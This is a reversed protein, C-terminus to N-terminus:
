ADRASLVTPLLRQRASSHLTFQGSEKGMIGHFVFAFLCIFLFEVNWPFLLCFGIKPSLPRVKWFSPDTTKALFWGQLTCGVNCCELAIWALKGISTNHKHAQHKQAEGPNEGVSVPCMRRWTFFPNIWQRLSLPFTSLQKESVDVTNRAWQPPIARGQGEM